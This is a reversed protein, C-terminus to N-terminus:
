RCSKQVIRVVLKVCDTLLVSIISLLYVLICQNAFRM